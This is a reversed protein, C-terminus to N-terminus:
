YASRFGRFVPVEPFQGSVIFTHGLFLVEFFRRPVYQPFCGSHRDSKLAFETSFFSIGRVSHSHSKSRFCM